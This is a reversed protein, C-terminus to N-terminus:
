ITGMIRKKGTLGLPCAFVNLELKKILNGADGGAARPPTVSGPKILKKKTEGSASSVCGTHL